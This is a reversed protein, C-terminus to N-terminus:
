PQRGRRWEIPGAAAGQRFARVDDPAAGCGAMADSLRAVDDADLTGGERCAAIRELIRAKTEGELPASVANGGSARVLLEVRRSGTAEDELELFYCSLSHWGVAPGDPSSLLEATAEFEALDSRAARIAAALPELKEGLCVTRAAASEEAHEALLRVAPTSDLEFRQQVQKPYAQEVIDFAHSDMQRVRSECDASVQGLLKEYRASLLEREEGVRSEREARSRLAAARKREAARMAALRSAAAVRVEHSFLEKFQTVVTSEVGEIMRPLHSLAELSTLMGGTTHQLQHSFSEFVAKLAEIAEDTKPSSVKMESPFDIKVHPTNSSM